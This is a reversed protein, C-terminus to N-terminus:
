FALLLLPVMYFRPLGSITTQKPPEKKINDTACVSCGGLLNALVHSIGLLCAAAVGLVFADHSPEKCEFLWLKLHKEQNQAAEAKIGLIGAISDLAVILLCAFIGFLKAMKEDVEHGEYMIVWYSAVAGGEEEDGGADASGRNGEAEGAVNDGKKTFFAAAHSPRQSSDPCELTALFTPSM